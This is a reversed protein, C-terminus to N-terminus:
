AELEISLLRTRMAASDHQILITLGVDSNPGLNEAMNGVGFRDIPNAVLFGALDYM